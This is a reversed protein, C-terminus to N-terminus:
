CTASSRRLGPGPRRPRLASAGPLQVEIRHKRASIAPMHTEVARTVLEGLDVPESRLNIKGQTIRSLDLLDDVLRTMHRVQREILNLMQM